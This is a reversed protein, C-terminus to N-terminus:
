LRGRLMPILKERVESAFRMVNLSTSHWSIKHLLDHLRRELADELEARLIPRTSWHRHERFTRSFKRDLPHGLHSRLGRVLRRRDKIPLAAGESRLMEYLSHPRIVTTATGKARSRMTFPRGRHMDETQWDSLEQGIDIRKAHAIEHIVM